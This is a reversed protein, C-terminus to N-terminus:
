GRRGGEAVPAQVGVAGPLRPLDAPTELKPFIVQSTRFVIDNFNRVDPELPM